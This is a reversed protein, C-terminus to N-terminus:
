FQGHLLVDYFDALSSVEIQLNKVSSAALFRTVELIRERSSQQLQRRMPVGLETMWGRWFIRFKAALSTRKAGRVWWEVGRRSFICQSGMESRILYLTAQIHKLAIM